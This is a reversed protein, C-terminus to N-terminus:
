FPNLSFLEQGLLRNSASVLPATRRSRNLVLPLLLQILKQFVKIQLIAPSPPLCDLVEESAEAYDKRNYLCDCSKNWL